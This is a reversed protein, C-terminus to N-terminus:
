NSLLWRAGSMPIGLVVKRGPYISSIYKTDKSVQSMFVTRGVNVTVLLCSSSRDLIVSSVTGELFCVDSFRAKLASGIPFDFIYIKDANMVAVSKSGGSGFLILRQGDSLKKMCRNNGIREWPGFFINETGGGIVYGNFLHVVSDCVESIWGRDHSSVVITTGWEKQAMLAAEKILQASEMDVNATPEDLLLVQPRLVLRAALAVRQAEGGSLEFWKRELFYKPELGVWRLAESVRDHLGHTIGRLRLGYSVNAFVSRKLLYPEQCLLTIQFRIPIKNKVDEPPFYKIKGESPFEIFALLKLFTSKGSGNPGVLGVIKHGEISLRDIQLVIKEGYKHKLSEIQYVMSQNHM